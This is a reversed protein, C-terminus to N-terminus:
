GGSTKVKLLFDLTLKSAAVSIGANQREAYYLHLGVILIHLVRRDTVSIRVTRMFCRVIYAWITCAGDSM